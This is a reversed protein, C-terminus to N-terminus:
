KKSGKKVGIKDRIKRIFESESIGPLYSNDEEFVVDGGTNELLDVGDSLKYGWIPINGNVIDILPTGDVPNSITMDENVLFISSFFPTNRKSKGKKILLIYKNGKEFGLFDSTHKLSHEIDSDSLAAITEESSGIYFEANQIGDLDAGSTDSYVDTDPEVIVNV